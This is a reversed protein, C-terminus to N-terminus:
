TLILSCFSTTKMFSYGNRTADIEESQGYQKMQPPSFRDALTAYQIGLYKTVNEIEANGVIRGIAPHDLTTTAM